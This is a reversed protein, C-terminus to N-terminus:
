SRKSTPIGLLFGIGILYVWYSNTERNKWDCIRVDKIKKKPRKNGILKRFFFFLVQESDTVTFYRFGIGIPCLARVELGVGWQLIGNVVKGHFGGEWVSEVMGESGGPVFRLDIREQVVVNVFEQHQIEDERM